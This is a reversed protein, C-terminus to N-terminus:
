CQLLKELTLYDKQYREKEELKALTKKEDIM